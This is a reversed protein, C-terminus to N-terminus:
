DCANVLGNRVAFRVLSAVEFIGLRDMLQARHTEVTKTSIALDRAIGKTTRGAAILRLVQCQRNTLRGLEDADPRATVMGRATAESTEISVYTGGAAVARIALELQDAAADKALYGSAGSAFAQEIYEPNLYMSLMIVRIEPHVAKILGVAKLGNLKPMAIDLLVVDPAFRSAAAVAEDGDAVDAVVEIGEIAGLLSRLGERLLTHDDALLVRIPM